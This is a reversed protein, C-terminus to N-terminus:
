AAAVAVKRRRSLAGLGTLASGFLWIAAPVPVASVGLGSLTGDALLNIDLGQYVRTRTTGSTSTANGSTWVYLNTATGVAAFLDPDFVGWAQPMTGLPLTTTTQGGLLEQNADVFFQEGGAAFIGSTGRLGNNTLPNLITASYQLEASGVFRAADSYLNSGISDGGIVAYEYGLASTVGIFSAVTANSLSGSNTVVGTIPQGNRLTTEVGPTATITAQTLLSDVNIGLDWVMQRTSNSLDRVVLVLGGNGTAPVDAAMAGTSGLALAGAVAIAIKFSTKMYIREQKFNAIDRLDMWGLVGASVNLLIDLRRRGGQRGGTAPATATGKARLL